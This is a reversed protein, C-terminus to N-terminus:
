RKKQYPMGLARPARSHGIFGALVVITLILAALAICGRGVTM